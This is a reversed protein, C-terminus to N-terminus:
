SRDEIHALFSEINPSSNYQLTYNLSRAYSKADALQRALEERETENWVEFDLDFGVTFTCFSSSSSISEAPPTKDRVRRTEKLRDVIDSYADTYARKLDRRRIRESINSAKEIGTVSLSFAISEPPPKRQNEVYIFYVGFLLVILLWGISSVGEKFTPVDKAFYMGMNISFPATMFGTLFRGLICSLKGASLLGLFGKNRKRGNDLDTFVYLMVFAFVALAAWEILFTNSSIRTFLHELPQIKKQNVETNPPISFLAMSMIVSIMAVGLQPLLWDKITIWVVSGVDRRFM